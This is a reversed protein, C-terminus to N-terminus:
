GSNEHFEEVQYVLVELKEERWLSSRAGMKTCLHDLFDEPRPLQQWVQPLFTARRRGSKLIVGDVYPTLKAPLDAPSSYALPVPETLRSIEIHIDRLERQSVPMFRPDKLAADVAHELVDQALPQYAELAGICGRLDGDITLTVFSAGQERLSPTLLKHQLEPIPLGKVACEMAGRALHLLFWKEEATLPTSM